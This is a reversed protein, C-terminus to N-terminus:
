AWRVVFIIVSVLIKIQCALVEPHGAAFIALKITHKRLLLNASIM